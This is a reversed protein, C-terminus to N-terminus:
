MDKGLAYRAERAVSNTASNLLSIDTTESPRVAEFEEEDDGFIGGSASGGGEVESDEDEGIDLGESESRVSKWFDTQVLKCEDLLKMNWHTLALKKVRDTRLRNRLSTRIRGQMSFSREAACYSPSVSLTRLAFECLEALDVRGVLSKWYFLPMKAFSKFIKNSNADDKQDSWEASLKAYQELVKTCLEDSDNADQSDSTAGGTSYWEM